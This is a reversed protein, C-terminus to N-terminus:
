NLILLQLTASYITHRVAHCIDIDYTGTCYTMLPADKPVDRLTEDLADWSERRVYMLAFMRLYTCNCICTLAPSHIHSWSHSISSILSHNPAPSLYPFLVAPLTICHLTTYHLTPTTYNLTGSSPPQSLYPEKSYELMLRM